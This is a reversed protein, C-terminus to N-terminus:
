ACSGVWRGVSSKVLACVDWFVFGRVRVCVFSLFVL